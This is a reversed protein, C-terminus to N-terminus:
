QAELMFQVSYPMSVYTIHVSVDCLVVNVALLHVTEQLVKKNSIGRSSHSLRRLCLFGLVIVM